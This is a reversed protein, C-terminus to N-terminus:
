KRWAASPDFNGMDTSVTVGTILAAKAQPAFVGIGLSIATIILSPKVNM